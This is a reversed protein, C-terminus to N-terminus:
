AARELVGRKFLEITLKAAADEPTDSGEAEVWQGRLHSQYVAKWFTDEDLAHEADVHKLVAYGPLRRLLYGLDYAPWNRYDVIFIREEMDQADDTSEVTSYVMHRQDEPSSVNRFQCHRFAAGDWGSLEYLEKCLDLSAVNM